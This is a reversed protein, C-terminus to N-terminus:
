VDPVRYPFCSMFVEVDRNSTHKKPALYCDDLWWTCRDAEPQLTSPQGAMWPDVFAKSSDQRSAPHFFMRTAGLCKKLTEERECGLDKLKLDMKMALFPILIAGNSSFGRLSKEWLNPGGGLPFCNPVEKDAIHFYATQPMMKKSTVQPRGLQQPADGTPSYPLDDHFM